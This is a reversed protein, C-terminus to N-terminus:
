SGVIFVVSASDESWFLCTNRGVVNGKLFENLYMYHEKKDSACKSIFVVFYM